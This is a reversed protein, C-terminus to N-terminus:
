SLFGYIPNNIETEHKDSIILGGSSVGAPYATKFQLYLVGGYKIM